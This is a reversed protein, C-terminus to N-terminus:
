NTPPDSQVTAALDEPPKEPFWARLLGYTLGLVAGFILHLGLMGLPVSPGIRFGFLGWGALPMFVVMMLLWAFVGFIIGKLWPAPRSAISEGAGFMLGWILTGVIFHDAWAPGVSLNGGGLNTLLRIINIQPMFDFSSKLLFIGALALSAVFGAILGRMPNSMSIYGEHLQHLQHKV